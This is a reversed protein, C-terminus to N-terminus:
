MSVLNTINYVYLQPIMTGTKWVPSCQSVDELWKAPDEGKITGTKWVPSCQSM